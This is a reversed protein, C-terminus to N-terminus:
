ARKVGVGQYVVATSGTPKMRVDDAAGRLWRLYDHASPRLGRTALDIGHHDCLTRLRSASVFLRRDHIRPPPGGKLREGILVIVVYAPLGSSVTDCVLKGGPKLVRAIEAIVRPLNDVHEFIEGAVVIDASASPLPLRQVDARVPVVGHRKAELLASHTIDLGVHLYGKPVHPATLGGGCALDLLVAGDYAPPPILEARAKALWHLAAFSGRPEWWQDVLDDYQALANRPRVPLPAPTM